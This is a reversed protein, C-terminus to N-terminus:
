LSWQKIFEKLDRKSIGYKEAIIEESRLDELLDNWKKKDIIRKLLNIEMRSSTHASEIFDEYAECSLPFKDKILDYMARALEQIEWQAHYDARLKVYHFFNNLDIKWYLETYNNLPLVVRALERSLGQREEINYNDEPNEGLLSKYDNYNTRGIRKITNHCMSEEIPILKGERGQKNISSQPKLNEKDPVYFEDSMVSYRGSYENLNATRHRVHQRMVFIPMKLHFKVECMELPSTHRHKVLYRILARDDRTGKTGSGYSVRAAQVIAEDSGMTDILGVFGHDLYKVYNKDKEFDIDTVKTM